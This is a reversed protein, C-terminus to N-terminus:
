ALGKGLFIALLAMDGELNKNAGLRKPIADLIFNDHESAHLLARRTLLTPAGDPGQYVRESDGPRFPFV